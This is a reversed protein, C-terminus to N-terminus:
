SEQEPWYAVGACEARLRGIGIARIMVMSELVLAIAALPQYTTTSGNILVRVGM